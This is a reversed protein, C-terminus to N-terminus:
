WEIELVEPLERHSYADRWKGSNDLYAMCRFTACRVRVNEYLAPLKTLGTHEAGTRPKGEAEQRKQDDANM